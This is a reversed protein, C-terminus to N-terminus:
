LHHILAAIHIGTSCTRCRARILELRRSGTDVGILSISWVIHTEYFLSLTLTYGRAEAMQLVAVLTTLITCHEIQSKTSVEHM